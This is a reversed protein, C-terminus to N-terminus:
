ECRWDYRGVRCLPSANANHAPAPDPGAGLLLPFMFSVVRLFRTITTAVADKALRVITDPKTPMELAVVM